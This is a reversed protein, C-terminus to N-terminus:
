MVFEYDPVYQCQCFYRYEGPNLHSSAYQWIDSYLQLYLGFFRYRKQRLNCEAESIAQRALDNLREWGCENRAFSESAAKRLFAIKRCREEENFDEKEEKM